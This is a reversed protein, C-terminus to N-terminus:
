KSKRKLFIIYYFFNGDKELTLNDLSPTRVIKKNEEMIKYNNTFNFLLTSKKKIFM